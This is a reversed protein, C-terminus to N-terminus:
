HSQRDPLRVESYRWRSVDGQSELHGADALAQIREAIREYEVPQKIDELGHGIKAIIMAVKQWRSNATSLILADLQDSM